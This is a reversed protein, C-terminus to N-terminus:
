QQEYVVSPLCPEFAPFLCANILKAAVSVRLLSLSAETHAWAWILMWVKGPGFSESHVASAVNGLELLIEIFCPLHM